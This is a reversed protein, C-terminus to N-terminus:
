QKNLEEIIEGIKKNVENIETIIGPNNGSVAEQRLRIDEKRLFVYKGLMEARQM